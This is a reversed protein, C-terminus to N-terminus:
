SGKPKPFEETGWELDGAHLRDHGTRRDREGLSIGVIDSVLSGGRRARRLSMVGTVPASAATITAAPPKMPPTWTWFLWAAVVVVPPIRPAPIGVPPIGPPPPGGPAWPPAVLPPSLVPM